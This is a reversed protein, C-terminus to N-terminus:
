NHHGISHTILTNIISNYRIQKQELIANTLRLEEQHMTKLKLIKEQTDFDPLSFTFDALESKRISPIGSGAALAQFKERSVPLNFITSIYEPIVEERNPRLIIFVSSAVAPGFDDRYTWTFNRNGKAAFIVDGDKLLHLGNTQDIEVFTDVEGVQNGEDDFHKAQLYCANGTDSPKAHFGIKLEAIHKIKVELTKYLKEFEYLHACIM